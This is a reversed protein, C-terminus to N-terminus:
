TMARAKSQNESSIQLKAAKALIKLKCKISNLQFTQEKTQMTPKNLDLM